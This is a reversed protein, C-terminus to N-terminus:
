KGEDNQAQNDMWEKMAEVVSALQSYVNEAQHHYVLITVKAGGAATIHLYCDKSTYGYGQAFQLRLPSTIFIDKM